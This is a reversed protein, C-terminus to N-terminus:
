FASSDDEDDERTEENKKPAMDYFQLLDSLFDGIAILCRSKLEDKELRADRYKKLSQCKMNQRFSVNYNPLQVLQAIEEREVEDTYDYFDTPLDFEDKLTLYSRRHNIGKKFGKQEAMKWQHESEQRSIEKIADATALGEKKGQDRVWCLTKPFLKWLITNLTPM